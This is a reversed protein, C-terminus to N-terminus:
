MITHLYKLKQEMKARKDKNKEDFMTYLLRAQEHKLFLYPELKKALARAQKNWVQWIYEHKGNRVYHYTNGGFEKKLLDTINGVSMHVRITQQYWLSNGCRRPTASISGEGDIIGALYSLNDV